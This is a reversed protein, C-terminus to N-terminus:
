SSDKDLAINIEDGGLLNKLHYNMIEFMANCLDQAEIDFPDVLQDGDSLITVTYTNKTL